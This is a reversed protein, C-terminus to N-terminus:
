HYYQVPVQAHAIAPALVKGYVPVSTKVREYSVQATKIVTPHNVAVQEIKTAPQVVEIEQLTHVPRSVVIRRTKIKEDIPEHHPSPTASLVRARSIGADGVYEAGGHREHGVEAVGGRATLLQLLKHQNASAEEHSLHNLGKINVLSDQKIIVHEKPSGNSHAEVVLHANSHEYNHRAVAEEHAHADVHAQHNARAVAENHANVEVEYNHRAVAEEHAQAEVHAQHNAKAIADEHAHAEANYNARAVAEQHAIGAEHAAHKAQEYHRAAADVFISDSESEHHPGPTSSVIIAEHAPYHIPAPTSSVLIQAQHGHEPYSEHSYQHSPTIAVVHPLPTVAVAHPIPSSAIAVGHEAVHSIPHHHHQGELTSVVAPGKQHQSLPEDM